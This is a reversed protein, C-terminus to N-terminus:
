EAFAIMLFQIVHNAPFLKYEFVEKIFLLYKKTGITKNPCSNVMENVIEKDADLIFIIEIVRMVYPNM